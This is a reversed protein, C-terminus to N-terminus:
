SPFSLIKFDGDVEVVSGFVRIQSEKGDMKRRVKLEVKNWIRYTAYDAIGKTAIVDMLEYDQGGLDDVSDQAGKLSKLNLLNWHFDVPVNNGPKAQPFEPFIIEKYERETLRFSTLAGTDRDKLAELVTEALARITPFGGSLRHRAEKVTAPAAQARPDAPAVPAPSAVAQSTVAPESHSTAEHKEANVKPSTSGGTCGSLLLLTMTMRTALPARM